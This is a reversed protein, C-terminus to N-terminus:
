DAVFQLVQPPNILKGQLIWILLLMAGFQTKIEM